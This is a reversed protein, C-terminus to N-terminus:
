KHATIRCYSLRSVSDSGLTLTSVLLYNDITTDISASTIAINSAVGDTAASSNPSLSIISSGSIAFNRWIPSYTQSTSLTAFALTTSSLSSSLSLYVNTSGNFTDKVIGATVELISSTTLTNAPILYEKYVNGSSSVFASGIGDAAVLFSVPSTPLVYSATLAYSATTVSGLLTSATLAYSATTATGLLSGTFGETSTVSGSVSVSGTFQAPGINILTNSGSIILSGTVTLNGNINQSGSFSNSGTSPTSGTPAFSGTQNSTIVPSGNNTISGSVSFSGTTTFSGSTSFSGTTTFSGSNNISGTSNFSGSLDLSGSLTPM